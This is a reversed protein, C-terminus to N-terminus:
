YRQYEKSSLIARLVVRPGDKPGLEKLTSTYAALEEINAPRGLLLLFREKVWREGDGRTDSARDAKKSDVIVRGLVLRIPASDALALLANRTDRLERYSPRAGLLDVYVTQIWQMDTKPRPTTRDRYSPALVWERVLAKVARPDERFRAAARDRAAPDLEAGAIRRYLREVYRDAFEKRGFSIRVVDAQSAGKEGLFTGPAGDYLKKGAELAAVNAKDQVKLGLVQEMVVTVFTDNGPNRASFYQSIVISDLATRPDAEGSALRAPLSVLPESTPRFQDILLFYFLEDEYWHRWFEESALLADVSTEDGAKAAALLEAESPGRGLLDLYRRRILKRAEAPVSWSAEALVGDLGPCAGLPGGAFGGDAAAAPLAAPEPKASPAATGGAMSAGAMSGGDAPPAPMMGAATAAGGDAEFHDEYALQGKVEVLLDDFRAHGLTLFGQGAGRRADFSHTVAVTGNVALAATAGDFSLLLKYADGARVDCPADALVKPKGDALEGIAARRGGVFLGAYRARAIKGDDSREVDFLIFANVGGAGKAALGTVKAEIRDPEGDPGLLAAAYPRKTGALSAPAQGDLEGQAIKWDGSIVTLALFVAAIM